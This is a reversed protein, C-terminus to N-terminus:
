KQSAYYNLLAEIGAEGEKEHLKKLKKAMKKPMDRSGDLFDNLSYHVYPMWQGALVPSDEEALSGGESHCKECYKDHLKKGTEAKASDSDQQAPAFKQKEFYGAMLAIEDDSYGKAIRGMITSPRADKEAKYAVMAETFADAKLGAISPIAPGTSNGFTGHCGACTSGLMVARDDDAFANVSGFALGATILTYLGLKRGM